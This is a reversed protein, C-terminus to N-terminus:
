CVVAENWYNIFAETVPRCAVVCCRSSGPQHCDATLLSHVGSHGKVWRGGGMSSFGAASVHSFGASWTKVCCLSPTFRHTLTGRMVCGCKPTATIQTVNSNKRFLSISFEKSCGAWLQKISFGMLQDRPDTMQLQRELCRGTTAMLILVPRGSLTRGVRSYHLRRLLSNVHLILLLWDVGMWSFCQKKLGADHSISVSLMTQGCSTDRVMITCDERPTSTTSLEKM